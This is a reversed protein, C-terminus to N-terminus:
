AENGFGLMSRLEAIRADRKKIKARLRKVEKILEPATYLAWGPSISCPRDQHQRRIGDITREIQDLREDSM